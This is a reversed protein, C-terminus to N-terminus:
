TSRKELLVLTPQPTRNQLCDPIKKMLPVQDVEPSFDGILLASLIHILSSLTRQFAQQNAEVDQMQPFPPGPLPITKDIGCTFSSDVRRFAQDPDKM